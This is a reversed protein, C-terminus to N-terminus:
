LKFVKMMPPADSIRRIATSVAEVMVANPASARGRDVLALFDGHARWSLVPANKYQSLANVLLRNAAPEGFRLQQFLALVAAFPYNGLDGLHDAAAAVDDTCQTACLKLVAPFVISAVTAFASSCTSNTRTLRDLAARPDRSNVVETMKAQYRARTCPNNESEALQDVETLWETAHPDKTRNAVVVLDALADIRVESPLSALTQHATELVAAVTVNEPLKSPSTLAQPLALGLVEACCTYVAVAIFKNM